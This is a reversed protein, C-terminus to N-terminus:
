LNLKIDIDIEFYRNWPLRVRNLVIGKIGFLSFIKLYGEKIQNTSWNQIKAFYRIVSQYISELFNEIVLKKNLDENKLGLIKQIIFQSISTGLTNALTNWAWFGKLKFLKDKNQLYYKLIELSAGNAFSLDAIYDVFDTRGLEEFKELKQFKEFYNLFEDFSTFGNLNEIVEKQNRGKFIRWYYTSNKDNFFNLGLYNEYVKILSLLSIGEYIPIKYKLSENSFYRINQLNNQLELLIKALIVLHVEDLGVLYSFSYKSKLYQLELYNLGKFQSDDLVVLFEKINLYKSFNELLFEIIKLKKLRLLLIYFEESRPNVLNIYKEYELPLNEFYNEFVKYLKKNVELIYTINTFNLVLRPISIYFYFFIRDNYKVFDFLSNLKCYCKEEDLHNLDRSNVIGDFLFNDLSIIFFDKFFKKKYDSEHIKPFKKFIDNVSFFIQSNIDSIKTIYDFYKYSCPRSDLTLLNVRLESNIYDKVM